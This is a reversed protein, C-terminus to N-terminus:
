IVWIRLYGKERCILNLLRLGGLVYFKWINWGNLMVLKELWVWFVWLIDLVYM